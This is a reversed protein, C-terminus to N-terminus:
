AQGGLAGWRVPADTECLGLLPGRKFAWHGVGANTMAPRRHSWAGDFEVRADVTWGRSAERDRRSYSGSFRLEDDVQVARVSCGSVPLGTEVQGREAPEIIAM